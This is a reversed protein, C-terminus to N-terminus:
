ATVGAIVPIIGGTVLEATGGAPTFLIDFYVTDVGTEPPIALETQASPALTITVPTVGGSAVGSVASFTALATAAGPSAKAQMAFVGQTFDGLVPHTALDFQVEYNTGLRITPLDSRLGSANLQQLWEDFQTM